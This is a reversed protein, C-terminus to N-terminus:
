SILMNKYINYKIMTSKGGAPANSDLWFDQKKEALM